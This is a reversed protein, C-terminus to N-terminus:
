GGEQVLHLTLYESHIIFLTLCICFQISKRKIIFLGELKNPHFYIHRSLNQKQWTGPNLESHIRLLPRLSQFNSELPFPSLDNVVTTYICQNLM